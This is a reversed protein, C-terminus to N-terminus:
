PIELKKAPKLTVCKALGKVKRAFEKPDAKIYENTDYHMPIVMKPHLFRTAEVADDIGMTFNDGIPILAVDIPHRDGILKMDSFLCTDGAHYITKGSMTVLFGCAAGVYEIADDSVIASGHFTQVLKVWGFDFNWSGGIHMPHVKAGYRKCYMALEYPAVVVAGTLKSIEISDGLHDSHGHTALIGDVKIKDPTTTAQPNGNLFPDIIVKYKDDAITFCVHGLSEVTVM